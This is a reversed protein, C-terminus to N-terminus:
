KKGIGEKNKENMSAELTELRIALDAVKESQAKLKANEAKLEKIEAAQEKTRRELAQIAIFSVGEMDAQGITTDNGVTGYSDKGFAAYFDQAMPGYHRFSKASQGKYNWSTLTFNHIKNLFDEGNVAAFNEKKRRDSITAWSNAGTSLVVGSSLDSATYFKYGGNFRMMMQNVGDNTTTVPTGTTTFVSTDGIIMSGGMSNTSVYSGMAMTNNGSAVSNFGIAFTNDGSATTGNGMAVSSAGYAQTSNGMATSYDGSAHTSQGMSVSSNGSSQTYSMAVANNGTANGGAIAVAGSHNAYGGLAIGGNLATGYLLAISYDAASAYNGIAVADYGNAQAGDGMAIANTGTATTMNSGMAFSNDGNATTGNGMAVSAAGYAQTSNGM